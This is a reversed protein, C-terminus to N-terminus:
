DMSHSYFEEWLWSNSHRFLLELPAPPQPFTPPFNQQASIGRATNPAASAWANGEAWEALCANKASSCFPCRSAAIGWIVLPLSARRGFGLKYYTCESSELLWCLRQQITDISAAPALLPELPSSCCVFTLHEYNTSWPRCSLESWYGTVCFICQLALATNESTNKQLLVLKSCREKYGSMREGRM